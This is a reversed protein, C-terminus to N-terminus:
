LVQRKYVTQFSLIPVPDAGYKLILSSACRILIPSRNKCAPHNSTLTFLSRYYLWCLYTEVFSKPIQFFTGCGSEDAQVMFIALSVRPFKFCRDVGAKTRRIRSFQWRIEQSNSFVIWM